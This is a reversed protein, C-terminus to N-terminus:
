YIIELYNLILLERCRQCYDNKEEEKQKEIIDSGGKSLHVFPDNIGPSRLRRDKFRIRNRWTNVAGSFEVLLICGSPRTHWNRSWHHRREKILNLRIKRHIIGSLQHLFYTIDGGGPIKLEKSRFPINGLLWRDKALSYMLYNRVHTNM